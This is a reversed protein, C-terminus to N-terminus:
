RRGLSNIDTVTSVVLVLGAVILTAGVRGAALQVAGAAMLALGVNIMTNMATITILSDSRDMRMPVRSM